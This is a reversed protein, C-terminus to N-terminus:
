FLLITGRVKLMFNYPNFDQWFDTVTQVMIASSTATMKTYLIHMKHKFNTWSLSVEINLKYAWGPMQSFNTQITVNLHLLPFEVNKVETLLIFYNNLDDLRAEWGACREPRCPDAAQM